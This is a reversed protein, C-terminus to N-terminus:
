TKNQTEMREEGRRKEGSDRWGEKLLFSTHKPMFVELSVSGTSARLSLSLPGDHETFPPRQGGDAQFVGCM